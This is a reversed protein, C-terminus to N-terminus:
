SPPWHKTRSNCTFAEYAADLLRHEGVFNTENDSRIVAPTGRRAVFRRLVAIFADTTLDLVVELHVARTVLCVFVCCQHSGTMPCIRTTPQVAGGSRNGNHPHSPGSDSQMRAASGDAAPNDQRLVESM